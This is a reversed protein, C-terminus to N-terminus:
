PRWSPHGYTFGDNGILPHWNSGDIAYVAIVMTYEPHLADYAIYRSDPSWTIYNSHAQWLLESIEINENIIFIGSTEHLFRYVRAYVAQEGDPSFIGHGQYLDSRPSIIFWSRWSPYLTTIDVDDPFILTYEDSDYELIHIIGTEINVIYLQHNYRIQRQRTVYSDHWNSYVIHENDPLWVPNFGYGVRRPNMGDADMIYLSWELPSGYDIHNRSQYAIMTGDPSYSPNITDTEFDTIQTLERRGNGTHFSLHYIDYNGNRNSHFLLEGEIPNIINYIRNRAHGAYSFCFALVLVMVGIAVVSKLMLRTYSLM